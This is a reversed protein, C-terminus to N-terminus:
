ARSGTNRTGAFRATGLMHRAEGSISDQDVVATFKFSLRMPKTIRAQWNVQNGDIRGHTIEVRHDADSLSGTVTTGSVNLELVGLKDGMPTDITIDWRGQAM